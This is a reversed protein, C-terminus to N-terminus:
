KEGGEQSASLYINIIADELHIEFTNGSIALTVREQASCIEDTLESLLKRLKAASVRRSHKKSM